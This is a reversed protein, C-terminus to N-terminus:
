KSRRPYAAHSKWCAPNLSRVQAPLAAPVSPQRRRGPPLLRRRSRRRRPRMQGGASVAGLHNESVPLRTVRPFGQSRATSTWRGHAVFVSARSSRHLLQSRAYWNCVLKCTECTDVVVLLHSSAAFRVSVQSMGQSSLASKFHSHATAACAGPVHTLWCAACLERAACRKLLQTAAARCDRSSCKVIDTRVTKPLGASRLVEM